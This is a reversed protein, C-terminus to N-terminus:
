QGVGLAACLSTKERRQWIDTEIQFPYAMRLEHVRVFVHEGDVPGVPVVEDAIGLAPQLRHGYGMVVLLVEFRGALLAFTDYKWEIVVFFAESHVFLFLFIIGL